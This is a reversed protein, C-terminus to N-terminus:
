GLLFSLLRDPESNADSAVSTPDYDIIMNDNNNPNDDIIM